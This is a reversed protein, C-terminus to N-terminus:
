QPRVWTNKKVAAPINATSTCSTAKKMSAPKEGILAPAQAFVRAAPVGAYLAAGTLVTVAFAYVLGIARLHEPRGRERVLEVGGGVILVAGVLLPVRVPEGLLVLAIAVSVLPASGFMVSARSAGAERIALTVLLQGIGPQLLGALAFPWAGALHLGRSPAEIAAAVLGVALAGGVTALTAVAADPYRALGLRLGVSMAGFLLASVLALGVATM